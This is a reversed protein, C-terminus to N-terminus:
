NKSEDNDAKEKETKKKRIIIQNGVALCTIGVVPLTCAFSCVGCNGTCGGAGVAAASLLSAGAVSALQGIDRKKM